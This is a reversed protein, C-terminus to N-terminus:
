WLWEQFIDSFTGPNEDPIRTVDDLGTLTDPPIALDPGTLNFGMPFRGYVSSVGHELVECEERSQNGPPQERRSPHEPDAL